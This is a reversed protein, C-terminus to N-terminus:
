EGPAPLQGPPPTASSARRQAAAAERRAEEEERKAEEAERRKRGREIIAACIIGSEYLLYLPVGLFFQSFPDPPTMVAAVVFIILMAYKRGKRLTRAEIVGAKALLAMVVPLQFALGFCTLLSIALEYYEKVKPIYVAKVSSGTIEQSFSLDMFMPLVYFYVLSGGAIFLVPMVFLFPLIAGREKKYLGPAVFGYVEYAIYPFTAALALLFALKLKVFIMELPATTQAVFVEDPPRGARHAADGLPTLLYLLAPDTVFWAAIFTLGLAWCIRVLRSRLENLHDMLPARSAEVEDAPEAPDSDPLATL